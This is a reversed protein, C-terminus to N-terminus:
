FCRDSASICTGKRLLHDYCCKQDRKCSWTQQSMWLRAAVVCQTQRYVKRHMGDALAENGIPTVLAIALACAFAAIWRNMMSRGVFSSDLLDHEHKCQNPRVSRCIAAQVRLDAACARAEAAACAAKAHCPGRPAIPMVDAAAVATAPAAARLAARGAAARAPQQSRGRAGNGRPSVELGFPAACLEKSSHSNIAALPRAFALRLDRRRAESSSARYAARTLDAGAAKCVRASPHASM